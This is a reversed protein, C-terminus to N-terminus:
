EGLKSHFFNAGVPLSFDFEEHCRNCTDYITNDIGIELKKIRNRIFSADLGSLEEVFRQKDSFPLDKDNITAINAMLMYIYSIDGVMAPFKKQYRRAKVEMDAIDGLRPIRLTIKAKSHPLDFTDYPEEFDDPLLFTELTDLDIDIEKSAGCNPCKVSVTYKPGYTIIRLKILLFFKDAATLSNWDLTEPEVICKKILQDIAENSSGLLMKEEATTINRITVKAPVGQLVGNSPLTFTETAFAM